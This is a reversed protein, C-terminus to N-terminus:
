KTKKCEVSSEQVHCTNQTKTGRHTSDKYFFSGEDNWRVYKTTAGYTEIKIWKLIKRAQVVAFYLNGWWDKEYEIYVIKQSTNHPNPCVKIEPNEYQKLYRM